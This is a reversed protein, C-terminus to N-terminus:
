VIFPVEIVAESLAYLESESSSLSVAHQSKSWWCVLVGCVFVMYGTISKRTDKDGAWDSDSLPLIVWEKTPVLDVKLERSPTDLIYKIVRLLTSNREMQVHFREATGKSPREM